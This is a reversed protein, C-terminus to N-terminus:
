QGNELSGGALRKRRECRSGSSLSSETKIPETEDPDTMHVSIIDNVKMEVPIYFGCGWESVDTTLTDEHFVKGFRDIGSVEIAIPIEYRLERREQQHTSAMLLDSVKENDQAPM